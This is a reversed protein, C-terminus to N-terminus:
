AVYHCGSSKSSGSVNELRYFSFTCDFSDFSSSRLLRKSIRGHVILLIL